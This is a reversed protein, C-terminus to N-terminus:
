GGGRRGATARRAKARRSLPFPLPDAQGGYSWRRRSHSKGSFDVERRSGRFRPRTQHGRKLTNPFLACGLPHVGLVAPEHPLTRENAKSRQDALDSGAFDRCGSDPGGALKAADLRVANTWGTTGDYLWFSLDAM